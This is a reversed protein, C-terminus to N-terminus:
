HTKICHKINTNYAGSNSIQLLASVLHGNISMTCGQLCIKKRCCISFSPYHLNEYVQVIFFM